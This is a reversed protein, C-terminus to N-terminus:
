KPSYAKRFDELIKLLRKKKEELIEESGLFFSKKQIERVQKLFKKELWLHQYLRYIGTIMHNLLSNHFLRSKTRIVERIHQKNFLSILSEPFYETEVTLAWDKWKFENIHSFIKVPMWPIRYTDALIAGHMAESIIHESENIEKIVTEIDSSPSIYHVGAKHFLSQWGDFMNESVHHPIFSYKYKKEKFDSKPFIETILVAGDVLAKEPALKFHEATLPGRVCLIEYKEDLEPEYGYIDHNGAGYGTSFVIIKETNEHGKLLGITSGVGLFLIRTDDDFFDPLLKEFLLPNIADGFNKGLYYCLKM